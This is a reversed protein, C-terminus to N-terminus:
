NYGQWWCNCGFRCDNGEKIDVGTIQHKQNTFYQMYANGVFGKHGTILIKM